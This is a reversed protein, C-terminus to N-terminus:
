PTVQVTWIYVLPSKDYKLTANMGLTLLARMHKMSTEAYRCKLSRENAASLCRHHADPVLELESIRRLSWIM